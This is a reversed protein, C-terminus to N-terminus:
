ARATRRTEFNLEWWNMLDNKKEPVTENACQMQRARQILCM